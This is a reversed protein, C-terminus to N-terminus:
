SEGGVLSAGLITATFVYQWKWCGKERLQTLPAILHITNSAVGSAVSRSPAPLYLFLGSIKDPFSCKHFSQTFVPFCLSSVCAMSFILHCFESQKLFSSRQLIKHYWDTLNWLILSTSLLLNCFCSCSSRPRTWGKLAMLEITIKYIVARSLASCFCSPKKAKKESPTTSTSLCHEWKVNIETDTM